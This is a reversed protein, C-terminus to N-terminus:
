PTCMMFSCSEDTDDRMIGYHMGSVWPAIRVSRRTLHGALQNASIRVPPFWPRCCYLSLFRYPFLQLLYLGCPNELLLSEDMRRLSGVDLNFKGLPRAQLFDDVHTRVVVQTERAVLLHDTGRMFAQIITAVAHGRYTEDTARLVDVTLELVIHGFEEPSFVRDKERGAHVGVCTNELRYEGLFVDHDGVPQYMGREDVADPETFSLVVRILVGVHFVEFTLQLEMGVLTEFQDYGIAHERHVTVCCFQTLHDFQGLFM